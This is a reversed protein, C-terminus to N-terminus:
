VSLSQFISVPAPKDQFYSLTGRLSSVVSIFALGANCVALFSHLKRRSKAQNVGAVWCSPVPLAKFSIDLVVTNDPRFVVFAAFSLLAMAITLLDRPRLAVGNAALIPSLPGLVVRLQQNTRGKFRYLQPFSLLVIILHGNEVSLLKLRCAAMLCGCALAKLCTVTNRTYYDTANRVAYALCLDRPEFQKAYFVILLHTWAALM